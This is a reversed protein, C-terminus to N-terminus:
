AVLGYDPYDDQMTKRAVARCRLLATTVQPAVTDDWTLETVVQVKETPTVHETATPRKLLDTAVQAAVGGDRTLDAM